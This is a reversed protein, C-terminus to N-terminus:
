RLGVRTLMEITKADEFASADEISGRQYKWSTSIAQCHLFRCDKRMALWNFHYGGLGHVEWALSGLPGSPRVCWKEKTGREPTWNLVHDGHRPVPPEASAKAGRWFAKATAYGLWSKEAAEHLSPAGADSIAIEDIDCQLVSRAGALAGLRALNLLGSQLFKARGRSRGTGLPGYNSAVSVVRAAELGPVRRLAELVTEAGYQSNNDYFLVARSGQHRVYHAAWDAIWAPDNDKSTTLLVRKGTAGAFPHQIPCSLEPGGGAFQLTKGTAPGGLHVEDHRRLRRLRMIPHAGAESGFRGARLLAELNFLKPCILRLGKPTAAAGYVFTTWDYKQEFDAAQESKPLAAERRLPSGEPLVMPALDQLEFMSVDKATKDTRTARCLRALLEKRYTECRKAQTDAAPRCFDRSKQSPRKKSRGLSM